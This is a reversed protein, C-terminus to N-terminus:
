CVTNISAKETHGMLIFTWQLCPHCCQNMKRDKNKVCRMLLLRYQIFM